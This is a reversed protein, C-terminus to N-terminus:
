ARSPLSLKSALSQVDQQFQHQSLLLCFSQLKCTKHLLHPNNNEFLQLGWSAKYRESPQKTINLQAPKTLCEVTNTILSTVLVKQKTLMQPTSGQSQSRKIKM